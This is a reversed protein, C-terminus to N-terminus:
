HTLARKEAAIVEFVGQTGATSVTSTTKVSRLLDSATLAITKLDLSAPSTWASQAASADAGADNVYALTATLTTLPTLARLKITDGECFRTLDIGWASLGNPFEVVMTNTGTIRCLALPPQDVGLHLAGGPVTPVMAPIIRVTSGVPPTGLTVAARTIKIYYLRSTESLATGGADKYSREWDTPLTWKIRDNKTLGASSDTLGAVATWAAGNWYSVTPSATVNGLTSLGFVVQNFKHRSGLYVSEGNNVFIPVDATAASGADTTDDVLSGDAGTYVRIPARSQYNPPFVSAVRNTVTFLSEGSTARFLEAALPHIKAGLGSLYAAMSANAGGDASLVLGALANVWAKPAPRGLINSLAPGLNQPLSQADVNLSVGLLANKSAQETSANVLDWLSAVTAGSIENLYGTLGQNVLDALKDTYSEIETKSPSAM